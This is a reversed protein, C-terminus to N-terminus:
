IKDGKLTRILLFAQEVSDALNSFANKEDMAEELTCPIRLIPFFADIGQQNCATADSTVCGSFALVPKQYQKALRAVGVPAKGMASQGDLRGEGTVVFDSERIFKEMGTERIVLDVGSELTAGLYSLFAFGLGGAAGAGPYEPNATPYVEKTKEAYHQMWADMRQVMEPTAGKQPGYVASCGSEGCLPNTVDCAVCFQCESLEELANETRITVIRGLGEAGYPVEKGDADLFEFGLAQLMGIGGDNTASGGIGVVFHRCGSKIADVIMEGVGYTTTKQPDREEKSILTIGSASSMEIVATKTKSILGYGASIMKGLPNHVSVERIEGDMASIVANVTGEGGDALPCIRVEADPYVRKIGVSAAEGSLFTSLSGKFSDIAVTVRM